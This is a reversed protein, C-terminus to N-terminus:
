LSARGEREKKQQQQHMREVPGDDLHMSEELMMLEMLEMVMMVLMLMMMVLALVMMVLMLAMTMMMVLVLMVTTPLARRVKTSERILGWALGTSGGGGFRRPGFRARIRKRGKRLRSAEEVGRRRRRRTRRGARKKRKKRSEEKKM